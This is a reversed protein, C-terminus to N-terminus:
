LLLTFWLSANLVPFLLVSHDANHLCRAMRAIVPRVRSLLDAEDTHLGAVGSSDHKAEQDWAEPFLSRLLFLPKRVYDVTGFGALDYTGFVKRLLDICAPDERALVYELDYCRPAHGACTLLGNMYCAAMNHHYVPATVLAINGTEMYVLQGNHTIM